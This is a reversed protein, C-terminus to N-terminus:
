LGVACRAPKGLADVVSRRPAERSVLEKFEASDALEELCRWYEPGRVSALRQRIANLDYV